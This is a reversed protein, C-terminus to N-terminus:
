RDLVILGGLNKEFSELSNIVNKASKFQKAGSIPKNESNIILGYKCAELVFSLCSRVRDEILGAQKKFHKPISIVTHRDVGDVGILKIGSANFLVDLSRKLDSADIYTLSIANELEIICIDEKRLSEINDIKKAIFPIVSLKKNKYNQYLTNVIDPSFDKAILLISQGNEGSTTLLNHIESVKELVGDIVIPYIGKVNKLDVLFGNPINGEIGLTHTASMMFNSKTGEVFELSSIPNLDIIENVIQSCIGNGLHIKILDRINDRTARQVHKFNCTKRLMKMLLISSYASKKESSM